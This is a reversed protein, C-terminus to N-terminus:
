TNREKERKVRQSGVHRGDLHRQMKEETWPVLAGWGTGPDLGNFFAVCYSNRPAQSWSPESSM